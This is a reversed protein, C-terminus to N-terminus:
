SAYFWRGVLNGFPWLILTGALWFCDGGAVAIWYAQM